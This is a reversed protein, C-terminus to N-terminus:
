LWRGAEYLFELEAKPPNWGELKVRLPAGLNELHNLLDPTTGFMHWETLLIANDLEKIKAPWPYQPKVRKAICEELNSEIFRYEPLMVKIPRPMDVLYTESADHLLAVRKLTVPAARCIHVCHEAVSYFRSLHGGFRCLNSLAHAIDTLHVEEPRPDCPWFKTGSYTAMWNGVRKKETSVSFPISM